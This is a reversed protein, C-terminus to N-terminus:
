NVVSNEVPNGLLIYIEIKNSIVRKGRSTTMDSLAFFYWLPYNSLRSIHRKMYNRSYNSYSNSLFSFM